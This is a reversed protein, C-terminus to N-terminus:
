LCAEFFSLCAPLTCKKGNPPRDISPFDKKELSLSLSNCGVIQLQTVPAHALSLEPTACAHCLVAWDSPDGLPAVVALAKLTGNGTSSWHGHHLFDAPNPPHCRVFTLREVWPLRQALATLLLSLLPSTDEEGGTDPTPPAGHFTVSRYEPHAETHRLISTVSGDSPHLRPPLPAPQSAHMGGGGWATGKRADACFPLCARVCM